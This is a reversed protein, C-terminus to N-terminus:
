FHLFLLESAQFFSESSVCITIALALLSGVDTKNQPWHIKVVEDLQKEFMLHLKLPQKVLKKKNFIYLYTKSLQKVFRLCHLISVSRSILLSSNNWSLTIFYCQIRLAKTEKETFHPVLSLRLSPRQNESTFFVYIIIEQCLKLKVTTKRNKLFFLLPTMM